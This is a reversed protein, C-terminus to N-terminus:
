RDTSKCEELCMSGTTKKLRERSIYDPLKTSEDICARSIQDETLNRARDLIAGILCAKTLDAGNLDADTFDACRLTDNSAKACRFDTGGLRAGVLIARQLQAGPMVSRELFASSLDSEILFVRPLQADNLYARRLNTRAIDLDRTDVDNETKREIMVDLAAKIHPMLSVVQNRDPTQTGPILEKAPCGPATSLDTHLRVYASLVEMAPWHYNKNAEAIEGIVYIAGIRAAADAPVKPPSACGAVKGSRAADPPDSDWLLLKSAEGFRQSTMAERDIALKAETGKLTQWSFYLTAVVGLGGIVQAATRRFADELDGRDKLKLTDDSTSSHALREVQWPPLLWVAIVAVWLLTGILSQVFWKDLAYALITWVILLALLVLAIFPLSLAAGAKNKRRRM